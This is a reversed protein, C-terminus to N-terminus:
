VAQFVDWPITKDPSADRADLVPAWMQQYDKKWQAVIRKTEDKIHPPIKEERLQLIGQPWVYISGGKTRLSLATINLINSLMNAVAPAVVQIGFDSHLGRGVIITIGSQLARVVRPHMRPLEQYERLAHYTSILAVDGSLGHLDVVRDPKSWVNLLGNQLAEIYLPRTDELAELTVDDLVTIQEDGTCDALDDVYGVDDDEM